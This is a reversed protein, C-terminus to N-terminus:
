YIPILPLLIFQLMLFVITQRWHPYESEPPRTIHLLAYLNVCISLVANWFTFCNAIWLKSRFCCSVYYIGYKRNVSDRYLHPLALRQRTAFRLEPTLKVCVPYGHLSVVYVAHQRMRLLSLM